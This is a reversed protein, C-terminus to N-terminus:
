ARTTLMGPSSRQTTRRLSNCQGHVDSPPSPISRRRQRRHQITREAGSRQRRPLRIQYDSTSLEGDLSDAVLLESLDVGEFLASEVFDRWSSADAPNSGKPYVDDEVVTLSNTGSLIVHDRAGTLAVYLLRKQEARDERQHRAKLRDRVLTDKMVFPDTQTPAKLGLFPVDYIEDLYVKGYEDVNARQNFGTNLEPVVVIRSELGKASHVTRIEVGETETHITAEPTRKALTQQRDIRDLLGSITLARQDEWNRFQERLKEVNVVAQQSRDDASISALYGTEDIM